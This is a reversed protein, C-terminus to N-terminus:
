VSDIKVRVSVKRHLRDFAVIVEFGVFGCAVMYKFCDQTAVRGEGGIVVRGYRGPVM